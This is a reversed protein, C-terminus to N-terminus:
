AGRGPMMPASPQLQPMGAGMGRRAMISNLLGGLQQMEDADRTQEFADHAASEEQAKAIAAAALAAQHEPHAAGPAFGRMMASQLVGMDHPFSQVDGPMGPMDSVGAFGGPPPGVPAPQKAQGDSNQRPRPAGARSPKMPM